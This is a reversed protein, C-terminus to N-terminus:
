MGQCVCIHVSVKMVCLAITFGCVCAHLSVCECLYVGIIDSKPAVFTLLTPVNLSLSSGWVPSRWPLECQSWKSTWQGRGIFDRAWGLGDGLYFLHDPPYNGDKSSALLDRRLHIQSGQPRYQRTSELYVVNSSTKTLEMSHGSLIGRVGFKEQATVSEM